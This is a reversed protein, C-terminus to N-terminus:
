LEEKNSKRSIEGTELMLELVTVQRSMNKNASDLNTMVTDCQKLMMVSEQFADDAFLKLNLLEPFTKEAAAIKMTQNKLKSIEVEVLTIGLNYEYSKNTMTRLSSTNKKHELFDFQISSARAKLAQVTSFEKNLVHLGVADPRPAIKVKMDKLEQLLTDGDFDTCEGALQLLDDLPIDGEETM